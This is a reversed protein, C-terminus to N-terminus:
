GGEQFKQVQFSYLKVGPSTYSGPPLGAKRCLNKMFEDIGWGTETAVQPLFIGSRNGKQLLVGDVGLRIKRFDGLPKLSTLVSIEINLAAAEDAKVPPFRPDESASKVTNEVVASVIPSVGTITGICGRLEKGKRLTVFVGALRMMAPTINYSKLDLRPVSGDATFSTLVDRSLRLLVKQEDENLRERAAAFCFSGYSVSNEWDGTVEGSTYYALLMSQNRGDFAALAIAIPLAGCATIGTKRRYELFAKSDCDLITRFAGHDLRRLNERIDDKFPQYGFRPGFHTFDSSVVLLTEDDLLPRIAEAVSAIEDEGLQGVLVPVISFEGLTRQLFPLQIEISHEESHARREEGFHTKRRLGACAQSDLPVEGLPTSYASYSPVSCGRFGVRHTPALIVVRRFQRGDICKYGTAAAPGSYAYAAHPVILARLGGYLNPANAKELLSDIKDGLEKPDAPYWSGALASPRVNKRETVACTPIAMVFLLFVLAPGSAAGIWRRFSSSRVM